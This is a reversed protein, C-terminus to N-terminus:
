LGFEQNLLDEQVEAPLTFGRRNRKPTEAANQSSANKLSSLVNAIHEVPLAEDTLMQFLSRQNIVFQRVMPGVPKSSTEQWRVALAYLESIRALNSSYPEQEKRLWSYITPRSVHLAEALEKTTLSFYHQIATLQETTSVVIEDTSRRDRVNTAECTTSTARARKTLDSLARATISGGTGIGLGAVLIGAVLPSSLKAGTGPIGFSIPEISSQGTATTM